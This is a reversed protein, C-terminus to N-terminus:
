AVWRRGHEVVPGILAVVLVIARIWRSVAIGGAPDRVPVM